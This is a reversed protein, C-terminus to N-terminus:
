EARLAEVPDVKTARRAPVFVAAFATAGLVACVMATVTFSWPVVELGGHVMISQIGAALLVGAGLGLLVQRAGQRVVLGLVESSTAGLAIRVGLERTRQSALFSSVGYLGVSALLFAALAVAWFLGGIIVLDLLNTNIADQLTKVFYVPTDEQLATVEERIVPAFALPDGRTRVAVSVTRVDVQALPVYLGERPGEPELAGDMDLDPVVGVITRWPGTPDPWGVRIQRGVADEGGFFREAYAQNVVAVPAGDDDDGAGFSRGQLPPAEFAEFFGPAVYGVRATPVESADPHAQGEVVARQISAPVGPLATGLAVAVV